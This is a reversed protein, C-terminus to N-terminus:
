VLLYDCDSQRLCVLELHEKWKNDAGSYAKHAKGLEEKAQNLSMLSIADSKGMEAVANTANDREQAGESFFYRPMGLQWASTHLFRVM